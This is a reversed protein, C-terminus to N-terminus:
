QCWRKKWRRRTWATWLWGTAPQSCAHERRQQVPGKWRKGYKQTDYVSKDSQSAGLYNVIDLNVGLTCDLIKDDMFEVLLDIILEKELIGSPSLQKKLVAKFDKVLDPPLKSQIEGAVTSFHLYKEIKHDMCM